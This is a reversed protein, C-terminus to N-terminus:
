ARRIKLFSQYAFSSTQLIAFQYNHKLPIFNGECQAGTTVGHVCGTDGQYSSELSNGGAEELSLFSSWFFVLTFLSSQIECIVCKQAQILSGIVNQRKEKENFNRPLTLNQM